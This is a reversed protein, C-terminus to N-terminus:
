CINSHFPNNSLNRMINIEIGYETNFVNTDICGLKKSQRNITTQSSRQARLPKSMLRRLYRVMVIVDCHAHYRRLDGAEIINIWGKIRACILSFMLAGRWQGKHRPGTFEGCLRGTVRFINGKSSTMMCPALNDMDLLNHSYITVSITRTGVMINMAICVNTVSGALM